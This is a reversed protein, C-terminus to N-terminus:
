VAATASGNAEEEIKLLLKDLDELDRWDAVKDFAYKVTTRDRGFALGISTLSAEPHVTATVHMAVQRAWAVDKTSRTPALLEERRVGFERQVANLVKELRDM